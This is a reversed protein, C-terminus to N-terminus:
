NPLHTKKLTGAFVSIEVYPRVGNRCSAIGQMCKQVDGQAKDDSANGLALAPKSQDRDTRNEPGEGSGCATERVIKRLEHQCSHAHAYALRNAQRRSMRHDRVIERPFFSRRRHSRFLTTYPFLTDTRTSRPPRLVM